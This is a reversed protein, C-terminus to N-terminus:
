SAKCTVGEIHDLGVISAGINHAAESVECQGLEVSPVRGDTCVALMEVNTLKDSSSHNDQISRVGASQNVSSATHIPTGPAELIVVVVVALVVLELVAAGEGSMGSVTASQM